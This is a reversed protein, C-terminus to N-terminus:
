LSSTIIAKKKLERLLVFMLAEADKFNIGNLLKEIQPAIEQATDSLAEYGNNDEM